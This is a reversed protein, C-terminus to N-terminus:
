FPCYSDLIKRITKPMEKPAVGFDPFVECGYMLSECIVALSKLFTDKQDQNFYKGAIQLLVDYCNVQKKQMKLKHTINCTLAILALKDNIDTNLYGLDFYKCYIKLLKDFSINRLENM